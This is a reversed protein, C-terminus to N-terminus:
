SCCLWWVPLLFILILLFSSEYGIGMVLPVTVPGTTIAGADWAIHAMANSSFYTLVLTIGYIPLLLYFLYIDYVIKLIGIFVGM